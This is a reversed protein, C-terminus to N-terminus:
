SRTIPNNINYQPIDNINLLIHGHHIGYHCNKCVLVCKKIEQRARATTWSASTISLIKKGRYHHFDLADGWANFGCIFCGYQKKINHFIEKFKMKHKKNSLILNQQKCQKCYRKGNTRNTLEIQCTKCLKKTKNRYKRQLDAWRKPNLVYWHKERCRSCCYLHNKRISLFKIKCLLCKRKISTAM